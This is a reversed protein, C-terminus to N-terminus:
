KLYSLIAIVLAALAILTNVINFANSKLKSYFVKRKRKRNNKRLTKMEAKFEPSNMYKEINKKVEESKAYESLKQMQEVNDNIYDPPLYMEVM